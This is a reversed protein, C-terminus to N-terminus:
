SSVSAGEGAMVILADVAIPTSGRVILPNVDIERIHENEVGMRGIGILIQALLEKDVPDLGRPSELIATARISSMMDYADQETLPALRFVVDKLVESFIGGLGFLVCPGFQPDRTMGVMLEREGTVMEQVLVSGERGGLRGMISDFAAQMEDYNRVDLHILKEETKHAVHPSVGKLALPFGMASACARLEDKTRVNMERAVPIGYRALMQKAEFESIVVKGGDTRSQEM